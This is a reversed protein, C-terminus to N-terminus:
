SGDGSPRLSHLRELLHSHGAPWAFWGGPRGFRACRPCRLFLPTANTDRSCLYRCSDVQTLSGESFENCGGLSLASLFCCNGFFVTSLSSLQLPYSIPISWRRM